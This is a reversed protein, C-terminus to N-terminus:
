GSYWVPPEPVNNNMMNSIETNFTLITVNVCKFDLVLDGDLSMGGWLHISAKSWDGVENIGHIRDYDHVHVGITRSLGEICGTRTRDGDEMHWVAVSPSCKFPTKKSYWNLIYILKATAFAWFSLLCALLSFRRTCGSEQSRTQQKDWKNSFGMGSKLQSM